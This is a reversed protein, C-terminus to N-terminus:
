GFFKLWSSLIKEKSTQSRDIDTNIDAKAKSVTQRPLQLNTEKSVEEDESGNGFYETKRNTKNLEKFSGTSKLLQESTHKYTHSCSDASCFSVFGTAMNKSRRTITRTNTEIESTSSTGSSSLQFALNLGDGSWHEVDGSSTKKYVSIVNETKEEAMNSFSADASKLRATKFHIDNFDSANPGFYRSYKGESPLNELEM